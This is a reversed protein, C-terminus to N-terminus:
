SNAEPQAIRKSSRARQKSMSQTARLAFSVWARPIAQLWLSHEPNLQGGSEMGASSGTLMEGSATLRVPGCLKAEGPLLMESSRAGGRTLHGGTGDSVAPTQWGVLEVTKRSSDTNGAENYGKQAPTGAMPTPWGALNAQRPLQDLRTRETGDPNTGTESMGPSDKWDRASPSAWASLQSQAHLTDPKGRHAGTSESDEAKPTSWSALEADLVLCACGHATGHIEKQRKHRGTVDHAQPTTWQSLTFGNASTRPASATHEWYRRRLPTAKRKWTQQFLTSGATDLRQQLRSALSSELAASASSAHSTRGSTVLTQLGSAKVQQASAPAPPAPPGSPNTTPGDPLGPLSAGSDEGPSSIASPTDWLTPQSSM